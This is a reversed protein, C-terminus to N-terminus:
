YSVEVGSFLSRGPAPTYFEDFAFSSFNFAYIGRTSYERDLLNNAQAFATWRGRSLSVRANVLNYPSLLPAKNALDSTLAQDGVYIDQLGIKWGAALPCEVRASVKLRPVQPLRDGREVRNGINADDFATRFTADTYTAGVETFLHAGFSSALTLVAGRRRTRPLNLNEGTFSSPDTLVFFIEDRVDIWFANLDLTVREGLRQRWGAEYDESHIPDLDPNSFFIPFAFLEIVTPARFGRSYGAYLGMKGSPNFNVGLKPSLRSFTRDGGTGQQTFTPTFTPPPFDYFAREGDSSLQVRDLRIGAAVSWRPGFTFTDQVFVGAFRRTSDSRSVGYSFDSQPLPDGEADTRTQGTDFRDRSLEAGLTLRNARSGFNRDQIAQVTWAVGRRDVESISGLGSRGGNFGDENAERFSLRSTLSFGRGLLARYHLSPLVLDTASFDRSNFPNQTRDEELEERTLAGPQHLHNTGATLDLGVSQRDSLTWGASGQFSSLRVDTNDRFGESLRRTFGGYYSLRGSQGGSAARYSQTSYSGGEIRASFPSAESGKRTVVNIVGGLGGEGFLASSSGRVIEIRDVDGLPVLEFNVYGTDPENIRVGDVVVLASTALSGTNFGRLDATAEVGNGVEDFVVFDSRMMLFDQLTTAGSAEIEERTYVSVHAPVRSVEEPTDPLRTATVRVKEVLRPAPKEDKKKADDALAGSEAPAGVEEAQARLFAGCAIGVFCGALWVSGLRKM